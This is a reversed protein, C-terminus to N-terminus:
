KIFKKLTETTISIVKKQKIGTIDHAGMASTLKIKRNREAIIRLNDGIILPDFRGHIMESPTKIMFSRPWNQKNLIINDMSQKFAPTNLTKNDFSTLFSVIGAIQQIIADGAHVNLDNYTKNYFRDIISGIEKKRFIPPSALIMQAIKDPYYMTYDAAILCGMSHGALIIPGKIKLKKITRSLAKRANEYNYEYNKPRPSHGFGMLDVGVFRVQELEKNQEMQKVTARWADYSSAIGHIFIITVKPKKSKCFDHRIAMTEPRRFIRHIVFHWFQRLKKRLKKVFTKRSSM